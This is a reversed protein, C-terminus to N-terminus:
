KTLFNRVIFDSNTQQCEARPNTTKYEIGYTKMFKYILRM